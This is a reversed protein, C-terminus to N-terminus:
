RNRCLYSGTFAYSKWFFSGSGLSKCTKIGAEISSKNKIRGAPSLIMITDGKKLNPPKVLDRTIAIETDNQASIVNSIFFITFAFLLKFYTTKSM